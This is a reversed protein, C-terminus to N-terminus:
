CVVWYHQSSSLLIIQLILFFELRRECGFVLRLLFTQFLLVQRFHFFHVFLHLLRRELLIHLFGRRLLLELLVRLFEHLFDSVEVFHFLLAWSFFLVPFYLLLLQLDLLVCNGLVRLIKEHALAGLLLRSAGLLLSTQLMDLLAGEALWLWVVLLVLRLELLQLGEIQGVLFLLFRLLSARKEDLGKFGSRGPDGLLAHGVGAFGVTGLFLDLQSWHWLWINRREVDECRRGRV